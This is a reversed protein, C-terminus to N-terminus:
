IRICRGIAPFSDLGVTAISMMEQKRVERSKRKLFYGIALSLCLEIGKIRSSGLLHEM